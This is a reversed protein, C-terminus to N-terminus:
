RSIPKPKFASFIFDTIGLKAAEAQVAQVHRYLTARTCRLHVVIDNGPKAELAKKKAKLYTSVSVKLAKGGDDLYRVGDKGDDVACIVIKRVKGDTEIDSNFLTPKVSPDEKVKAPCASLIPITAIFCVLVVSVNKM